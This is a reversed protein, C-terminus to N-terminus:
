QSVQLLGHRKPEPGIVSIVVSAKSLRHVTNAFCECAYDMNELASTLLPANDSNTIILLSPVCRQIVRVELLQLKDAERLDEEHPLLLPPASSSALNKKHEEERFLEVQAKVEPSEADFLQGIRMAFFNLFAGRKEVLEVETEIKEKWEAEIGAKLDSDHKM